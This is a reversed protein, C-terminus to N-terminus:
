FIWSSFNVLVTLQCAKTKFDLQRKVKPDCIQVSELQLSLSALSQNPTLARKARTRRDGERCNIIPPSSVVVTVLGSVVVVVVVM